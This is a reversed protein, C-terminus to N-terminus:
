AQSREIGGAPASPATTRLPRWRTAFWLRIILQWLLPKGAEVLSKVTSGRIRLPHWVSVGEPKVPHWLTNSRRLPRQAPRFVFTGPSHSYNNGRAFYFRNQNEPRVFQGSGGFDEIEMGHQSPISPVNIEYHGGLGATYADHLADLARGSLRCAPLFAKLIRAEEWRMGPPVVQAPYAGIKYKTPHDQVPFVTAALVDAPSGRFREFFVGWAGEWHVDYELFWYAARGPHRRRFELFVLDLNGAMDWDTDDCKVPYGFAFIDAKSIRDVRDRPVGATDAAPDDASLIFRVDHDPPAERAIRDFVSRVPGNLVHGVVAVIPRGLSSVGASM